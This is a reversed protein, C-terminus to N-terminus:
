IIEVIVEASFYTTDSLGESDFATIKFDYVGLNQAKVSWSFLGNDEGFNLGVIESCAAGAAVQSDVVDDYECTYTLEDGDQDIDFGTNQDAMDLTILQNQVLSYNEISDLLPPRNVNNVTIKFIVEDSLVGSDAIM